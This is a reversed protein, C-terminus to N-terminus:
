NLISLIVYFCVEQTAGRQGNYPDFFRQLVYILCPLCFYLMPLFAILLMCPLFAKAYCMIILGLALDYLANDTACEESSGFMWFNGVIFWFLFFMHVTDVVSKVKGTYQPHLVSRLWTGELNVKYSVIDMLIKVTLGITHVVSWFKIRGCTHDENWHLSLLIIATIIQPVTYFIQLYLLMKAANGMRADQVSSNLVNLRVTQADAGRVSISMSPRENRLSSDYLESNQHLLGDSHRDTMKILKTNKQIVLTYCHASVRCSNGLTQFLRDFLLLFIKSSISKPNKM